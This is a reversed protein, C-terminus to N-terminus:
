LSYRSKDLYCHLQSMGGSIHLCHNNGLLLKQQSVLRANSNSSEEQSETQM